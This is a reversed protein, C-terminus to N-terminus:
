FKKSKRGVVRRLWCSYGDLLRFLATFEYVEMPPGSAATNAKRWTSGVLSLRQGVESRSEDRNREGWPM